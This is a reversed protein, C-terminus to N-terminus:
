GDPGGQSYDPIGGSLNNPSPTDTRAQRSRSRSCGPQSSRFVRGVQRATRRCVANFLTEVVSNYWVGIKHIERAQATTAIDRGTRAFHAGVKSRSSRRCASARRCTGFIRKSPDAGCVGGGVMSFFGNMPGMYLGRRILREFIELSHVPGLAFYAQIEHERLRKLHEIYFEPTAEAVMQAWKWAVQPDALQTGQVDDANMLATM